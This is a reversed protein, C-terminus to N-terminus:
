GWRYGLPGRRCRLRQTLQQGAARRLVEGTPEVGDCPHGEAALTQPFPAVILHLKQCPSGAAQPVRLRYPQQFLGHVIRRLRAKVVSGGAPRIHQANIFRRSLRSSLPDQQDVIDTGGICGQGLTDPHQFLGPRVTNDTRYYSKCPRFINM